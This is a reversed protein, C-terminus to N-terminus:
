IPRTNEKLWERKKECSICPSLKEYVNKHYDNLWATESETLMEPIIGKLSIPCLSMIEFKMFRGFENEFDECVRAINETRVGHVGERYVGPEISVIMNEELRAHIPRMSISQPGEHVSLFYGLGHGTGCNYNLGENWMVSRAIADIHIGAAGYLFKCTALAIHSKLTLTFDRKEQETVDSFVVTRTIDTTGDLYQGGSDVVMLSKDYIRSHKSETPAYHMMAGNQGYGVIPEFSIGCSNEREPGSRLEVLKKYCDWETLSGNERDQANSGIENEVWYLFDVMAVGDRIQCKRYNEIEVDNKIAKLRSILDDRHISKVDKDLLGYLWSNLRKPDYVLSAGKPLNAIIGAIDGYGRVVVGERKLAAALEPPIKSSKADGSGASASDCSGNGVGASAGNGAGKGVSDSSGNGVGACLYAEEFSICAYAYVVPLCPIDQGRINFLWAIDELGAAFYHTARAMKMEERLAALKEGVSAGAFKVDHAFAAIDPIDPRDQTWIMDPLSCDSVLICGKEGIKRKLELYDTVPLLRGDVGVKGFDSVKDAIWEIYENSDQLRLKMLEIGSGKLQNEAQIFYRGDTWLGASDRAVVLTGNSGTFGSMWKRINWHEAAYESMHPDNDPVLFVELDRERMLDRLMEIKKVTEMGM